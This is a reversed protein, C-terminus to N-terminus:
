AFASLEDLANTISANTNGVTQEAKHVLSKAVSALRQRDSPNERLHQTTIAGLTEAVTDALDALGTDGAAEALSKATRVQNNLNEFLTDAIPVARTSKRKGKTGNLSQVAEADNGLVAAAYKLSTLMSEAAGKWSATLKETLKEVTNDKVQTVLDNLQMDDLTIKPDFPPLAHIHVEMSWSNAFDDFSPMLDADFLEGSAEEAERLLQNWEPQLNAIEAKMASKHGAFQSLFEQMNGTPLLNQGTMWQGICLRMPDYRVSGDEQPTPVRMLDRARSYHQQVRTLVAKTLLKKSFSFMDMEAGTDDHIESKRAADTKSNSFRTATISVLVCREHLRHMRAPQIEEVTVDLDPKTQNTM